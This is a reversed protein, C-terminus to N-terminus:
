AFSEIPEETPEETPEVTTAESIKFCWPVAPVTDDFCCGRENVCEERGIGYYGCDERQDPLTVYM